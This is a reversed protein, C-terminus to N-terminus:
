RGKQQKVPVWFKNNCDDKFEGFREKIMVVEKEGGPPEQRGGFGLCATNAEEFKLRQGFGVLTETEGNLETPCEVETEEMMVTDGIEMKVTMWDLVLGEREGEECRIERGVEKEGIARGWVMFQSFEGNFQQSFGASGRGVSIHELLNEHFETGALAPVVKEFTVKGNMYVTISEVSSDYVTCFHTWRDPIHLTRYDFLLDVVKLNVFGYNEQLTIGFGKTDNLEYHILKAGIIHSVKVWFCFSLDLLTSSSPAKFKTISTETSDTRKNPYILVPFLSNTSVLMTLLFITVM